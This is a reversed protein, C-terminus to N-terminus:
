TSKIKKRKKQVGHITWLDLTQMKGCLASSGDSETQLCPEKLNQPLNELFDRVSSLM